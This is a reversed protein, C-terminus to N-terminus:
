RSFTGKVQYLKFASWPYSSQYHEATLSWRKDPDSLTLADGKIEANGMHFSTNEAALLLPPSLMHGTMQPIIVESTPHDKITALASSVEWLPSSYTIKKAIIHNNRKQGTSVALEWKQPPTSMIKLNELSEEVTQSSASPKQKPTSPACQCLWLFGFILVPYLFSRSM